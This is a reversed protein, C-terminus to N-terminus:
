TLADVLLDARNNDHSNIAGVALDPSEPSGTPQNEPSKAWEAEFEAPPM